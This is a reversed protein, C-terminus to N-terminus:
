NCPKAFFQQWNHPHVDGVLKGIEYYNSCLGGDNSSTATDRELLTWMIYEQRNTVVVYFYSSSGVANAPDLPAPQNIIGTDFLGGPDSTCNAVSLGHTGNLFGDSLSSDIMGFGVLNSDGCPYKGFRDYFLELAKALQNLDSVRRADRSKTRSLNITYVTVASLVGIIAIVM